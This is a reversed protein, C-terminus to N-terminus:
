WTPAADQRFRMFFDTHEFRVRGTLEPSWFGRLRARELLPGQDALVGRVDSYARMIAALLLGTEGGVDM